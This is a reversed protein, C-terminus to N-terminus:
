TRMFLEAIPVGEPFTASAEVPAVVAFTAALPETLWLGVVALAPVSWVFQLLPLKVRAPFLGETPAPSHLRTLPVAVMAVAEAYLEPTVPTGAPLLAMNVHVMEFLGHVLEVSLTTSVFLAAEVM